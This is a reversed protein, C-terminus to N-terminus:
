GATRERVALAALGIVLWIGAVVLAPHAALALVTAIILGGIVPIVIHAPRHSTRRGCVFYGIVAAHLFLFGVLAGVTVLSSLLDLGDPRIAASVSISLTLVATVLVANRPTRTRRDIRALPRPLAGDRAMGYMLRSAAAQAVMASFVPGIAKVVTVTTGLWTGIQSDLLQYFDTGQEGQHAALYGPTRPSLLAALYTQVVFLAGALVLCVVLARSVQRSSGTTEEAFSAIGDFGLFSLVAISVAGIVGAPDFTGVGTLPSLWGRQPGHTALVVIAAVVFVALMVIEVGLIIFSVTTTTRIGALNLGTMLVIGAATFVWAPVSPVLHHAAIGLILSMMSPMFLYDLGLMWGAIFGPRRGLGASAYAFVSGALPVARSMRAYSWATFAVALTAIIFVLGIAGHSRADLVGFTGMPSTPGIFLLGYVILTPLTLSRRLGGDGRRDPRHDRRPLATLRDVPM